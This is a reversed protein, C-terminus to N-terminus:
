PCDPDDDYLEEWACGLVKAIQKGVKIPPQRVGTEYLCICAESRGVMLGLQRMTIGTKSRIDRLRTM